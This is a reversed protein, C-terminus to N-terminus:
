KHHAIALALGIAAFAFGAGVVGLIISPLVPAIGLSILPAEAGERYLLTVRAGEKPSKWSKAIGVRTDGTITRGDALTVKFIPYYMVRGRGTYHGHGTVVGRVRIAGRREAAVNMLLKAATLWLLLGVGGFVAPFVMAGRYVM